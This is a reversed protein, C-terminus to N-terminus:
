FIGHSIQRRLMEYQLNRPVLIALAGFMVPTPGLLVLSLLLFPCDLWLPVCLASSRHHFFSFEDHLSVLELVLISDSLFYSPACYLCM